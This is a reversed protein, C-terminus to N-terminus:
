SINCKRLSGWYYTDAKELVKGVEPRVDELSILKPHGPGSRWILLISEFPISKTNYGEDLSLRLAERLLRKVRNRVVARKATRKSISVGYHLTTEEKEEVDGKRFTVSALLDGSRFKRGAQFTRSFSKYGKVSKLKFEPM